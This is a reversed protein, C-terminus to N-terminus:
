RPSSTAVSTYGAADLVRRTEHLPDGAPGDPDLAYMTWVQTMAPPAEGGTFRGDTEGIAELWNDIMPQNVPDRGPRPATEGLAKLRQAEAM